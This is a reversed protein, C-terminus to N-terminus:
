CCEGVHRNSFNVYIREMQPQLFNQLDLFAREVWASRLHLYFHHGSSAMVVKGLCAELVRMVRNKEGTVCTCVCLKFASEEQLFCVGWRRKFSCCLNGPFVMRRGHLKEVFIWLSQIMVIMGEVM